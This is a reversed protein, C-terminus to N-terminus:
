EMLDGANGGYLRGALGLGWGLTYLVYSLYSYRSYATETRELYAKSAALVRTALDDAKQELAVAQLSLTGVNMAALQVDGPLKEKNRNEIFYATMNLATQGLEAERALLQSCLAGLEVSQKRLNSADPVLDAMQRITSLSDLVRRLTQGAVNNELIVALASTYPDYPKNSNQFERINKIALQLTNIETRTRANDQKLTFINNGFTLSDNVSKLHEQLGEKVIFTIFVVLAGVFTLLRNHKRFLSRVASSRYPM